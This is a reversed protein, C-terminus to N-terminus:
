KLSEVGRSKKEDRRAAAKEKARLWRVNAGQQRESSDSAAEGVCPAAQKGPPSDLGADAEAPWGLKRQGM